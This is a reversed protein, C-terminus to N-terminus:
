LSFPFSSFFAVSSSYSFLSVLRISLCVRIWYMVLSVRLSLYLLLSLSLANKRDNLILLLRVSVAVCRRRYPNHGGEDAQTIEQAEREKDGEEIQGKRKQVTVTRHGVCSFVFVVVFLHVISILYVRQHTLWYFVVHKSEKQKENFQALRLEFSVLTDNDTQILLPLASSSLTIVFFVVIHCCFLM